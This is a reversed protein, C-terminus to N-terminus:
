RNVEMTPACRKRGPKSAGQRGGLQSQELGRLESQELLRHIYTCQTNKGLGIYVLHVVGTRIALVFFVTERKYLMCFICLYVLFGEFCGEFDGLIAWFRGWFGNIYTTYTTYTACGRGGRYIQKKQGRRLLYGSSPAGGWGSGRREFGGRLGRFFLNLGGWVARCCVCRVCCVNIM